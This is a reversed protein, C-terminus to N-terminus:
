LWFIVIVAFAIASMLPITSVALMLVPLNVRIPTAASGPNDRLGPDTM